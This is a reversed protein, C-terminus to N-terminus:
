LGKMQSTIVNTELYRQPELTSDYPKGDKKDIYEFWIIGDDVFFFGTCEDKLRNVCGKFREDNGITGFLRIFNKLYAEHKKEDSYNITKTKM